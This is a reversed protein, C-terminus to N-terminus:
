VIAGTHGAIVREGVVSVAGVVPTAKLWVMLWLPALAVGTVHLAVPKGDQSVILLLVPTSLPVGVLVAEAVTTTVAVSAFRQVPM